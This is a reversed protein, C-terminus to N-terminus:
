RGDGGVGARGASPVLSGALIALLVLVAGGAQAPTLPEGLVGVSIALAAVPLCATCIGAMWTEVHGIGRYWLLLCLVSASLTYWGALLWIHMPVSALPVGPNPSLALPGWVLPLSLLTAALSGALALRIPSLIGSLRRSLLVFSAEGVVAAGVLVNGLVSRATGASGGGGAALILAVGAAALGVALAQAWGLREGLLLAGLLAAVAPLTALILGADVSSTRRLGELIFVTYLVMGLLSMLGIDRWDRATLARLRPGDACAALVALLVSAAAFRLVAFMPVPLSEVIVKGIPVNAGTMVMAAALSLCAAFRTM